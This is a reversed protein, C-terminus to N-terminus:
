AHAVVPITAGIIRRDLGAQQMVTVHADGDGAPTICAGAVFLLRCYDGYNEALDQWYGPLAGDYSLPGVRLGDPGHLAAPLNHERNPLYLRWAKNTTQPIRGFPETILHLYLENAMSEWADPDDLPGSAWSFPWTKEPSVVLVAPWEEMDGSVLRTLAVSYSPALTLVPQTHM